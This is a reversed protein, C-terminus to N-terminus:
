KNKANLYDKTLKRSPYMTKLFVTGDKEVIFPIAYVYNDVKLVFIRQNRRIPHEIEDLLNGEKILEVAKDFDFGCRKEVLLSKDETYKFISHEM